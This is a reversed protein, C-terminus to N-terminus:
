LLSILHNAVFPLFKSLHLWPLRVDLASRVQLLQLLREIVDLGQAADHWNASTALLDTIVQAIPLLHFNIHMLVCLSLEAM